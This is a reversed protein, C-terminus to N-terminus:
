VNRRREEVQTNTSRGEEACLFSSRELKLLDLIKGEM